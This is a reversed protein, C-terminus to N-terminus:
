ITTIGYRKCIPCTAFDHDPPPQRLLLQFLPVLDARETEPAIEENNSSEGDIGADPKSTPRKRRM